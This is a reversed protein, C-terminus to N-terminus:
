SFICGTKSNTKRGRAYFCPKSCFYPPGARGGRKRDIARQDCVRRQFGVGCTACTLSLPPPARNLEDRAARCEVCRRRRRRCEGGCDICRHGGRETLAFAWDNKQALQAVRQRSVGIARGVDSMTATHPPRGSLYEEIQDKATM